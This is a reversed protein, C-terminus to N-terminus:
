LAAAYAPDGPCEQDAPLVQQVKPGIEAPEDGLSPSFVAKVPAPGRERPLRLPRRRAQSCWGCRWGRITTTSPSVRATCSPWRRSSASASATARRGAPRELRVFRELVREREAAPIGPGTDAVEIAPAAPATARGRGCRAARRRTSSRTTSCTPSRRPSCSATRRVAPAPRAPASSALERGRRAAWLARRRRPDARGPRGARVRDRDSGAEVRRDRAACQLDRDPRPMRWRRELM